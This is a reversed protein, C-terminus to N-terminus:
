RGDAARRLAEEYDKRLKEALARFEDKRREQMRGLTRLAAIRVETEPDRVLEAVWPAGSADGVEALAALSALRVDKETDQLGRVLARMRASEGGRLLNVVKLRLAADTDRVVLQELLEDARPDSAGHLLEAAAWRVEPDADNLSERVRELEQTTFVPQPARPAAAPPEPPLPPEERTWARLQWAVAALLVVAPLAKRANM